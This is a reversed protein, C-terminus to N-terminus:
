IKRKERDHIHVVSRWFIGLGERTEERNIKEKEEKEKVKVFSCM